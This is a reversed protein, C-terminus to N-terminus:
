RNILKRLTDMKRNTEEWEVEPVSGEVIGAGAFYLLSDKMVKVCRLNVFFSFDNWSKFYGLYGGFIERDHYENNFLFNLAPQQPYGGIAPTPHLRKLLEAVNEQKVHGRFRSLFHKLEGAQLFEPKSEQFEIEQSLLVNRLYDSVWEQELKNKMILNEAIDSHNLLTGALSHIEFNNGKKSFFLEPTAGLWTGYQPTSILSVFANPYSQCATLFLKVPCFDQPMREEKQRSIVVKNFVGKRIESLAKNVLRAFDESLYDYTRSDKLFWGKIDTKVPKEMQPILSLVFGDTKFPHIIFTNEQLDNLDHFYTKGTIYNFNLQEPMKWAAFALNQINASYFLDPLNSKEESFMFPVVNM